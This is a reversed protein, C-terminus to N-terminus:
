RQFTPLFALSAPYVTSPCEGEVSSFISLHQNVYLVSLMTKMEAHESTSQWSVGDGGPEKQAGLPYSISFECELGIGSILWPDASPLTTFFLIEQVLL